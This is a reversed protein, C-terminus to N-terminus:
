DLPWFHEWWYNHIMKGIWFVGYDGQDTQNLKAFTWGDDSRFVFAPNCRPDLEVTVNNYDTTQKTGNAFQQELYVNVCPNTLYEISISRNQHYGMANSHTHNILCLEMGYNGKCVLDYGKNLKEKQIDGYLFLPTKNLDFITLITFYMVPISIIVALVLFKKASKPKQTESM